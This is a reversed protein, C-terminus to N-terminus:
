VVSSNSERASPTGDALFDGVLPALQDAQTVLGLHGDDYTHLTANPLLRHMLRANVLPIIPDDTGALILTPQRIFPLAPLSSWGLGALLQFVYGRRSGLRTHEHLLPGALHPETRLRGGYLEYAIRMAHVPDHYRRPTAMKLLVRPRAPVMLMGTGTSVLVLHRCRRPNHVAFQQALGGGWSIGLVDVEGYGLRDLLQGMFWALCAFTYPLKPVPSGGAGPVDFRVVEIAPDLQAVFPDLVEFSAGIGNCLVLPPRGPDAGRRVSVRVEHGAVTVRRIM